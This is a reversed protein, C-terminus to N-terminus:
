CRADRCRGRLQRLACIGAALGAWGSEVFLRFLHTRYRILLVILIAPTFFAQRGFIVQWENASEISRLMFGNVSILLSSAAILWVAYRESAGVPAAAPQKM